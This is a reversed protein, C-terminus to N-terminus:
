FWRADIHVPADSPLNNSSLNSNLVDISVLTSLALSSPASYQVTSKSNSL